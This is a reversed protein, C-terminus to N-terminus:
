FPIGAYIDEGDDDDKALDTDQWHHQPEPEPEPPPPPAVIPLDEQKGHERNYEDIKERLADPIDWGMRTCIREAIRPWHNPFIAHGRKEARLLFGQNFRYDATVKAFHGLAAPKTEEQPDLDGLYWQFVPNYVVM